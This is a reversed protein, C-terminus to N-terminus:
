ESFEFEYDDNPTPATRNDGSSNAEASDNEVHVDDLDGFDMDKDLEKMREDDEDVEEESSDSDEGGNYGDSGEPNYVLDDKENLMGGEAVSLTGVPADVPSSPTEGSKPKAAAKRLKGKRQLALPINKYQINNEDAVEDEFDSASLDSREYIPMDEHQYRSRTRSSAPLTISSNYLFGGGGIGNSDDNSVDEGSDNDNVKYADEDDDEVEGHEAILRRNIKLRTLLVKWARLNIIDERIKNDEEEVEKLGECVLEVADKFEDFTVVGQIKTNVERHSKFDFGVVAPVYEIGMLRAAKEAYPNRIHVCGEPVMWPEYIDINKYANRPIKGDIVPPPVYKETQFEAYLRTDDDNDGNGIDSDSLRFDDERGKKRTNTNTGKKRIKMPREGMKLVRGKMFWGRASRVIHVNKRKYVPIFGNSAKKSKGKNSLGGCSIKPYLIENYKLDSELVYVPHGKFDGVNSPMGEKLSLEEFEIQEFKDVRNDNLRKKSCAGRLLSAWWLEWKPDRTIRKKRVKANYEKAYRRTVDRIGGVRDYGVVYWANNRISNMPPELKSKWSVVEILKKVIPDITIYKKSDKDWVEAWFVPWGGFKEAFEERHQAQTKTVTNTYAKRSRLASLLNEKVNAPKSTKRPSWKSAERPMSDKDESKDECKKMNTFDPPQISFVLRAQLNLSRLLAVFGQASIDRSGVHSLISAHFNEKSLRQKKMNPLIRQNKIEPWLKKYLVPARSDIKWVRQWYEMLHRLLDLLRRTKSQATVNSKQRHQQYEQLEKKLKLPIQKQLNLLFKPDSLWANRTVGHGVMVFLHMLHLKRRFIREESSIVSGKTARKNHANKQITINIEENESEDGDADDMFSTGDLDVDEFEDSDIEEDEESKDLDGTDSFGEKNDEDHKGSLPDPRESKQGEFSRKMSIDDNDEDNIHIVYREDKPEGDTEKKKKLERMREVPSLIRRRKPSKLPAQTSGNTWKNTREQQLANRLLDKYQSPVSMKQELFLTIEKGTIWEGILSWRPEKKSYFVTTYESQIKTQRKVTAIDVLSSEHVSIVM